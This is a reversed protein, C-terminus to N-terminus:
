FASYALLTSSHAPPPSILSALPLLAMHVPVDFPLSGAKSTRDVVGLLANASRLAPGRQKERRACSYPLTRLHLVRCNCFLLLEASHYCYQSLSGSCVLDYCSRGVTSQFEEYDNVLSWMLTMVIRLNMLLANDILFVRPTPLLSVQSGLVCLLFIWVLIVPSAIVM